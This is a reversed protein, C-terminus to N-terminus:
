PLSPASCSNRCLSSIPSQPRSLASGFITETLEQVIRWLNKRYGVDFRLLDLACASPIRVPQNAARSAPQYTLKQQSRIKRKARCGLSGTGRARQTERVAQKFARKQIGVALEELERKQQSNLVPRGPIVNATATNDVNVQVEETDGSASRAWGRYIAGIALWYVFNHRTSFEILDSALRDVEAPIVRM